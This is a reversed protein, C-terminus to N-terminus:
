AWTYPTELPLGTLELFLNTKARISPHGLHGRKTVIKEKNKENLGYFIWLLNFSLVVKKIAFNHSILIMINLVM